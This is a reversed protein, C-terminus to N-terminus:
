FLDWSGWVKSRRAAFLCWSSDAYTEGAFCWAESIPSVKMIEDQTASANAGPNFSIFYRRILPETHLNMLNWGVIHANLKLDLKEAGCILNTFQMSSIQLPPSPPPAPPTACRPSFFFFCETMLELCPRLNMLIWRFSPFFLFNLYVKPSFLPITILCSFYEWYDFWM